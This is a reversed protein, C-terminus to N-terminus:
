RVHAYRMLFDERAKEPSKHKSVFITTRADIRVSQLARLDPSAKIARKRAEATKIEAEELMAARSPYTRGTLNPVYVTDQAKEPKKKRVHKKAQKKAMKNLLAQVKDSNTM